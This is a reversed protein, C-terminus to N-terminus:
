IGSDRRSSLHIFVNHQSITSAINWPLSLLCLFFSTTKALDGVLLSCQCVGVFSGKARVAPADAFFRVVAPPIRKDYGVRFLSAATGGWPINQTSLLFFCSLRVSPHAVWVLGAGREESALIEQGDDCWTFHFRLGTQPNRRVERGGFSPVESKCVSSQIDLGFTGRRKRGVKM